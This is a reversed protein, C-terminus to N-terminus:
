KDHLFYYLLQKVDFTFPLPTEQEPGCDRDTKRMAWDGCGQTDATALVEHGPVSKALSNAFNSIRTNDFRINSTRHRGKKVMTGENRKEEDTTKGTECAILLIQANHMLKPLINLQSVESQHLVQDIGVRIHNKNGHTIILLAGLTNDPCSKIANKLSTINTFIVEKVHFDDEKDFKCFRNMSNPISSESLASYQDADPTLRLVLITPPAIAKCISLKTRAQRKIDPSLRRFMDSRKLFKKTNHCINGSGRIRLWECLEVKNCRSKTKGNPGITGRPINKYNSSSRLWKVTKSACTNNMKKKRKIIKFM